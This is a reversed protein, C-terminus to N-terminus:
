EAKTRESGKRASEVADQADAGAVGAGEHEARRTRGLLDACEAGARRVHLHRSSGLAPVRPDRRAARRRDPRAGGCPRVVCRAHLGAAMPRHARGHQAYRPQLRAALPRRDRVAAREPEAGQIRRPELTLPVGDAVRLRGRAGDASHGARGRGTANRRCRVRVRRLVHWVAAVGPADRAPVRRDRPVAERAFRSLGDLRATRGAPSRLRLARRRGRRPRRRDRYRHQVQPRRPERLEHLRRLRFIPRREAGACGRRAPRTEM